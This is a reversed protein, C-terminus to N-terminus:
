VIWKRWIATCRQMSRAKIFARRTFILCALKSLRMRLSRSQPIGKEKYFKSIAPLTDVSDGWTGKVVNYSPGPIHQISFVHVDSFRAIEVGMGNQEITQIGKLRSEYMAIETATLRDILENTIM